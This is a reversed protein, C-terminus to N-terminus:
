GERPGAKGLPTSTISPALLGIMDSLSGTPSCFTDLTSSGIPLTIGATLGGRLSGKTQMRSLRLHCLTFPRVQLLQPYTSVKPHSSKKTSTSDPCKLTSTNSSHGPGQSPRDKSNSCKAKPSEASTDLAAARHPSQKTVVPERVQRYSPAPPMPIEGQFAPLYVKQWRLPALDAESYLLSDGYCGKFIPDMARFNGMVELPCPEGMTSDILLSHHNRPELISPYLQDNYQVWHPLILHSEVYHTRLKPDNNSFQLTARYVCHHLHMGAPSNSTNFHDPKIGKIYSTTYVLCYSPDMPISMVGSLNDVFLCYAHRKSLNCGAKLANHVARLNGEIDQIFDPVQSPSFLHSDVQHVMLEMYFNTIIEHGSDVQFVLLIASM